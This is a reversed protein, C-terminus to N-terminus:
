CATPVAEPTSDERAADPESGATGAPGRLLCGFHWVGRARAEASFKLSLYLGEETVCNYWRGQGDHDMPKAGHESKQKKAKGEGNKKSNYLSKVM